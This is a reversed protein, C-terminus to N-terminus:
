VAISRPALLADLDLPKPADVAPPDAAALVLRADAAVAGDPRALVPNCELELFRDGLSEAVAVLGDVVAALAVRDVPASGRVGDLVPSARFSRLLADADVPVLALAVDDLVEALTGGLGVMAALGFPTRVVGVLVEVGPAVQEEVLFGAAELGHEALADAMAVKAGLVQDPALGLRVAGVDSKHVIGPGFAKLVLRDGGAGPVAVGAEALLAKVTPEPVVLRSPDGDLPFGDIM